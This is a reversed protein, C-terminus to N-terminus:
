LLPETKKITNNNNVTQYRCNTLDISSNRRSKYVCMIAIVFIFIGGALVPIAIYVWPEKGADTPVVVPEPTTSSVDEFFNARNVVVVPKVTSIIEVFSSESSSTAITTSSTSIREQKYDDLLKFLDNLTINYKSLIDQGLRFNCRCIECGRKNIKFGNLCTKNCNALPQCDDAKIIPPFKPECLENSCIEDGKLCTCKTCGDPDIWSESHQYIRDNKFCSHNMQIYSEKVDCFHSICQQIGNKCVCETCGDERTWTELDNYLKNDMFCSQADMDKAKSCLSLGNSCKCIQGDLSRWERGNEFIEHGIICGKIEEPKKCEYLDCCNGPFGSGHKKIVVTKNIGCETKCPLCLCHDELEDVELHTSESDSPCPKCITINCCDETVRVAVSKKDCLQPMPCQLPNCVCEGDVLNKKEDVCVCKHGVIVAGAACPCKGDIMTDNVCGVCSYTPCCEGPLDSGNTALVLETLCPPKTCAAPDCKCSDESLVSDSPCAEISPAAQTVRRLM